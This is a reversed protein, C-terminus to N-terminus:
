RLNEANIPALVEVLTTRIRGADIECVHVGLAARRGQNEDGGHCSDCRV